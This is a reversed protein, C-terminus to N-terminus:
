NGIIKDSTEKDVDVKWDIIRSELEDLMTDAIDDCIETLDNSRDTSFSDMTLGFKKLVYDYLIDSIVDRM